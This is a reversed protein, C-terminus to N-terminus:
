IEKVLAVGEAVKFGFRKCLLRQMMPDQVYVHLQNIGAEDCGRFAEHLLSELADIRELKPKSLDLVAIAEAYVKVVGFGVVQGDIEIVASTVTNKLDPLSFHEDHGQRYIEDIRDLDDRKVPRIKV